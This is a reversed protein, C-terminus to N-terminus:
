NFFVDALQMFELSTKHCFVVFKYPDFAVSEHLILLNRQLDIKLKRPIDDEEIKFCSNKRTRVKTILDIMSNNKSLIGVESDIVNKKL